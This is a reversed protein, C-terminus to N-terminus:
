AKRRWGIPPNRALDANSYGKEHTIERVIPIFPPLVVELDLDPVEVELIRLPTGETDVIEDFTDLEFTLPGWDFMCRRKVVPTRNPDARALLADYEEATIPMENPDEVSTGPSIRRKATYTSLTDDIQRVRETLGRESLLYTQKIRYTRSGVPWPSDSLGVLFRREIEINPM